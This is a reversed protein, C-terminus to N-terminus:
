RTLTCEACCVMKKEMAYEKNTQPVFRHSHNETSSRANPKCM